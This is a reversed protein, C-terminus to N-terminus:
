VRTSIEEIEMGIELEGEEEDDYDFEEVPIATLLDENYEGYAEESAVTVDFKDGVQLGALAAELGPVVNEHGHLYELADDREVTEILEGEVYISYALSGVKGKELQLAMQKTRGNLM